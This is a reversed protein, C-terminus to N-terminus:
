YITNLPFVCVCVVMECSEPSQRSLGPSSTYLLYMEGDEPNEPAFHLYCPCTCWCDTQVAVGDLNIPAGMEAMGVVKRWWLGGLKDQSSVPISAQMGPPKTGQETSFRYFKIGMTQRGTFTNETQASSLEVSHLYCSLSILGSQKGWAM